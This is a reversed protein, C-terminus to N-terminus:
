PAIRGGLYAVAQKKHPKLKARRRELERARVRNFEFEMEQRIAEPTMETPEAVPSPTFNKRRCYAARNNTM